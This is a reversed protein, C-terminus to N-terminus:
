AEDLKFIMSLKRQCLDFRPPSYKKATETFANLLSWKTLDKFEEHRPKRFENLVALIDCSPIAKLEAAVVILRRADDISIAQIKLSDTNRELRIFSAELRDFVGGMLSEVEIGSTHKRHVVIEGSFCLNSCVRINLGATLGVALTKDHSNRFGLARTIDPRGEPSFRLVGFMKHEKTALGYDESVINWGRRQSENIALEAVQAHPIPKWTPTPEPTPIMALEQRTISRADHELMLGNM